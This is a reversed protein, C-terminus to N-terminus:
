KLQIHYKAGWQTYSCRELCWESKENWIEKIDQDSAQDFGEGDINYFTVSSIFHATDLIEKALPQCIEDVLTMERFYIRIDTIHGGADLWEQLSTEEGTGDPWTTAGWICDFIYEAEFYKEIIESFYKQAEEHLLLTYYNDSWFWKGTDLDKRYYLSFSKEPFQDSVVELEYHYSPLISPIPSGGSPLRWVNMITFEGSYRSALYEYAKGEIGGAGCSCLLLVAVGALAATLAYKRKVADHGGIQEGFNRFLLIACFSATQM